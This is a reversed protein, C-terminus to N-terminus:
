FVKICSKIESQGRKSGGIAFVAGNFPEHRVYRTLPPFELYRGIPQGTVLVGILPAGVLAAATLVYLAFFSKKEQM